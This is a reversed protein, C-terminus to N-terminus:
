RLLRVSIMWIMPRAVRSAGPLVVVRERGGKGLVRLSRKGDILDRWRLGCAESVRLGGGYLLVVLTRQPGAPLARLLSVAEDVSIFHPLKQPLKSSHLRLSLDENLVGENLMWKLFGRVAAAKRNRSAPMLPAWEKQASRILPLLTEPSVDAIQHVYPDWTAEFGVPAPSIKRVGLPSLFQQIDKAYSKSTHESCAKQQMLFKLYKCSLDALNHREPASLQSSM